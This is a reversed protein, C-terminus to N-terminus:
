KTLAELVAKQNYFGKATYTIFGFRATIVYTIMIM